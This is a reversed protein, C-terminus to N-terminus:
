DISNRFYFFSYIMYAIIIFPLAKLGMFLLALACAIVFLYTNQNNAWSYDKFKFALMKYNSIMLLLSSFCFVYLVIKDCLVLYLNSESWFPLGIVFLTAAPTALGKFYTTQDTSINFKALRLCAGIAFMFGPLAGIKLFSDTVFHQSLLQYLFIAPVLGFTVMDALSDLQAGLPSDINLKRAVFGDFFDFIGSLIVLYAATRLDGHCAFLVAISGSLLNSLTLLNPLSFM